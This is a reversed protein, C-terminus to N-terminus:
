DNAAYIIASILLILLGLGVLIVAATLGFLGLIAIDGPIALILASGAGVALGIGFLYGGVRLGKNGPHEPPKLETPQAAVPPPAAPMPRGFNDVAVGPRCNIILPDTAFATRHYEADLELIRKGLIAISRCDGRKAASRASKHLMIHMPEQAPPPAPQPAAPQQAPPQAPAPQGPQPQPPAPPPPAQLTGPGGPAPAGPSQMQQQRRWFAREGLKTALDIAAANREDTTRLKEVKATYEDILSSAHGNKLRFATQAM